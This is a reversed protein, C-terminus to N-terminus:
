KVPLCPQVIVIFLNCYDVNELNNIALHNENTKINMYGTMILFNMMRNVIIVQIILFNLSNIDNNQIFISGSTLM